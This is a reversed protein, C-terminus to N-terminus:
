RYIRQKNLWSQYARANRLHERYTKAFDHTGDGGPKACMYLFRHEAPHLVSQLYRPDVYRIPGPPLGQHKYTNYPSNVEKHVDLVRRITPDNLAFILTPDAQLAMGKNLRNLYLGAVLPAEKIVATEAQVISALVTVERPTLGLARAAALRDETWWADHERLIRKALSKVDTEWWMEYTNPIVRWRISDQAFLRAVETSDAFIHRAAAGAVPGVDRGSPIVVMVPERQGTVLRSASQKVSENAPFTYKGPKLRSTWDRFSVHEMVRGGEVPMQAGLTVALEDTTLGPPLHVTVATSQWSGSVWRKWALASLLGGVVFVTMAILALFKTRTM